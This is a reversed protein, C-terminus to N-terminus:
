AVIERGPPRNDIGQGVRNRRLAPSALVKRLFVEPKNLIAM